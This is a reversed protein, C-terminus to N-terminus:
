KDTVRELMAFGSAHKIATKMVSVDIRFIMVSEIM